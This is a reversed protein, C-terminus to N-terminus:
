GPLEVEDAWGWSGDLRLTGDADVLVVYLGTAHRTGNIWWLEVAGSARVRGTASWSTGEIVLNTGTQKLPGFPTQGGLAPPNARAILCLAFFLVVVLMAAFLVHAPTLKDDDM